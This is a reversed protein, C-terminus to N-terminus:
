NEADRLENKAIILRNPFVSIPDCTLPTRMKDHWGYFGFFFRPIRFSKKMQKVLTSVQLVVNQTHHTDRLTHV